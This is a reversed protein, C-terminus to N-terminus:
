IEESLLYPVNEEVAVRTDFGGDVINGVESGV